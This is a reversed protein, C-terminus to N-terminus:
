IIYIGRTTFVPNKKKMNIYLYINLFTEPTFSLKPFIDQIKNIEDEDFSIVNSIYEEYNLFNITKFLNNNSENFLKLHKMSKYLKMTDLYYKKISHNCDMM